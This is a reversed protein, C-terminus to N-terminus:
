AVSGDTTIIEGNERVIIGRTFKVGCQTCVAPMRGAIVTWGCSECHVTQFGVFEVRVTKEEGVAFGTCIEGRVFVFGM